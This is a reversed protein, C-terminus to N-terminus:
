QVAFFYRNHKSLAHCVVTMRGVSCIVVVATVSGLLRIAACAALGAALVSPAGDHAGHLPLLLRLRKM